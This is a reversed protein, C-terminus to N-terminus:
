KIHPLVKDVHQLCSSIFAIVGGGVLFSLITLGIKSSAFRWAVRFISKETDIITKDTKLTSIDSKMDIIDTEACGIRRRTDTVLFLIGNEPKDAGTILDLGQQAASHYTKVDSSLGGFKESLETLKSIVVDDTAM